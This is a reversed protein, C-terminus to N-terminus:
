DCHASSTPLTLNPPPRVQLLLLRLLLLPLAMLQPRQNHVQYLLHLLLQIEVHVKKHFNRVAWITEKNMLDNLTIHRACCPQGVALLTQFQSRAVTITLPSLILNHLERPASRVVVIKANPVPQIFSIEMSTLKHIWRISRSRASV